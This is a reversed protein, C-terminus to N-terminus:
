HRVSPRFIIGIYLVMRVILPLNPVLSLGQAGFVNATFLVSLSALGALVFLMGLVLRSAYRDALRGGIFNGASMGALIVGIVSTWTFLSVGVYPAIIRGAVLEITMVCANSIFVILSPRWLWDKKIIFHYDNSAM